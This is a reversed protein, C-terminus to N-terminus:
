LAIERLRAASRIQAASGLTAEMGPRPVLHWFGESRLHFFPLTPNGRRGEFPLVKEWYRAFLEGLDPTPEILNEL